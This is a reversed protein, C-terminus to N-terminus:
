RIPNEGITVIPLDFHEIFAHADDFSAFLVRMTDPMGPSTAAGVAYRENGIMKTLWERMATYKV